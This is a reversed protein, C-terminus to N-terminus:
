PYPNNVTAKIVSRRPEFSAGSVFTFRIYLFLSLIWYWGRAEYHPFIIGIMGFLPDFVIILNPKYLRFTIEM